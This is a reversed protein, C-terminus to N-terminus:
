RDTYSLIRNLGPGGRADGLKKLRSYFGTAKSYLRQKEYSLAISFIANQDIPNIALAKLLYKEARSYNGTSAYVIGINILSPIYDKKIKYSKRLQDMSEKWMGMNMLLSAVKNMIIYNEPEVEIIKEYISIANLYDKKNESRSAKYLYHYTEKSGIVPGKEEEVAPADEAKKEDKMGQDMKDVVTEKLRLPSETEKDDVKDLTSLAALLSPPPTNIVAKEKDPAPPVKKVIKPPANLAKEIKKNLSPSVRKNATRSAHMSKLKYLDEPIPRGSKIVYIRFLLSAVIIMFAAFISIALAVKYKKGVKERKAKNMDARLGPPTERPPPPMKVKSLMDSVLSM